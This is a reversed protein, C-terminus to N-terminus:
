LSRQGPYGGRTKNIPDRGVLHTVPPTRRLQTRDPELCVHCGVAGVGAPRRLVRSQTQRYSRIGGANVLSVRQTCTIRREASRSGPPESVNTQYAACAGDKGMREAAFPWPAPSATVSLHSFLTTPCATEGAQREGGGGWPKRGACSATLCVARMLTHESSM